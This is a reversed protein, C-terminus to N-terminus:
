KADPESDPLPQALDHVEEVDEDSVEEGPKEDPGAPQADFAEPGRAVQAWGPDASMETEVALAVEAALADDSLAPDGKVIKPIRSSAAAAVAAEDPRIEGEGTLDGFPAAFPAAPAPPRVPQVVRPTDHVPPTEITRDASEEKGSAAAPERVQVTQIETATKAEAAREHDRDHGSAAVRPPESPPPALPEPVAEPEDPEEPQSAVAPDVQVRARVLGSGDVRKLGPSALRVVTEGGSDVAQQWEPDVREGRKPEFLQWACLAAARKLWAARPKCDGGKAARVVAQAV